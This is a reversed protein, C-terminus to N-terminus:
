FTLLSALSEAFYIEDFNHTDANEHQYNRGLETIIVMFKQCFIDCAVVCRSTQLHATTLLGAINKGCFGTLGKELKAKTVFVGEAASQQSYM